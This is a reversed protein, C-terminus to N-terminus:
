GYVISMNSADTLKKLAGALTYDYSLKFKGDSASPNPVGTFTRIEAKLRSLQDYQYEVSGLADTMSTRNGAADYAFSSYISPSGALTHTLGSVLKRNNGAYSLSQRPWDEGHTLIASAVAM